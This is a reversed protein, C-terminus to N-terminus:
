ISARRLESLIQPVMDKVNFPKEICRLVGLSRLRKEVEPTKTGTMVLIPLGPYNQRARFIFEYGNMEPMNLDTIVFDIRFSGMIKEADKGNEATLICCDEVCRSLVNALHTCFFEDDDVLLAKKMECCLYCSSQWLFFM